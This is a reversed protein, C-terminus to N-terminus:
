EVKGNFIDSHTKCKYPLYLGAEHIEFLGKEFQGGFLGLQTETNRAPGWIPRTPNRYKSSPGLIPATPSTYKSCFWARLSATQWLPTGPASGPGLQRGPKQDLCWSGAQRAGAVPKDSRELRDSRELGRQRSGPAWFNEPGGWHRNM